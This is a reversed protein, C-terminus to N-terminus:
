VTQIKLFLWTSIKYKFFLFCCFWWWRLCEASLRLWKLLVLQIAQGEMGRRTELPISMSSTIGSLLNQSWLLKPFVPNSLILGAGERSPSESTVNVMFNIYSLKYSLGHAEHFSTNKLVLMPFAAGSIKFGVSFNTTLPPWIGPHYRPGGAQEGGGVCKAGRLVTKVSNLKGELSRFKYSGTHTTHTTGAEAESCVHM